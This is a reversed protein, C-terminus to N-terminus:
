MVKSLRGEKVVTLDEPFQNRLHTSHTICLITEYEAVVAHLLKVVSEEGTEDLNEFPEDLGKFRIPKNARGAALDGLAWGVAIDIRRREGASNGHYVDAGQQNTVEVQFQERWEGSKLQKQTRFQIRLDGGSLIDAYHQARETLFPVVNDLLHSKVGQNGFGRDWWELHAREIELAKCRYALRQRRTKAEELEAAKEEVLVLYPNSDEDLADIEQQTNWSQQELQCVLQLSAERKHVAERTQQLRAQADRVHESAEAEEARVQEVAAREEDRLRADEADLVKLQDRYGRAEEDWEKACHEADEPSLVQFCTPCQQGVLRDISKTSRSLRQLNAEVAGRRQRLDGRLDGYESAIQVRRAQRARYEKERAGLESEIADQEELLKDLGTTTYVEEIRAEIEVKQRRLENRRRSMVQAHEDRMRQLKHLSVEADSVANTAERHETEAETQRSRVDGMKRKVVERARAFQHAQLIEDLVAKQEKDTMQSFPRSGHALMVSQVFTQFDMGVVTQIQAQTDAMTGGSVDKGSVKLSLDNPRKAKRKRSRQVVYAVGADEMGLEVVCDRGVVDNVVDDGKYGRMTEGYLVWVIAEVLASKGAGNSDSGQSDRNLGFVAILGRRDLRIEQQNGFSLFNQIRVYTFRM